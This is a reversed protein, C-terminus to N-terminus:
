QRTPTGASAFAVGCIGNTYSDNPGFLIGIGNLNYDPRDTVGAGPAAGEPQTSTVAEFSVRQQM